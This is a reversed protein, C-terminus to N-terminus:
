MDTMRKTSDLEALAEDIERRAEKIKSLVLDVDGCGYLSLMIARHKSSVMDVHAAAERIAKTPGQYNLYFLEKMTEPTKELLDQSTM